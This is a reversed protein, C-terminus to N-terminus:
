GNNDGQLPNETEDPLSIDITETTDLTSPEEWHDFNEPILEFQEDLESPRSAQVEQMKTVLAEALQDIEQQTMAM